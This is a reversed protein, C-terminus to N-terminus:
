RERRKQFTITYASGRFNRRDLPIALFSLVAGLLFGVGQGLKGPLRNMMLRQWGFRNWSRADADDSTLRLLELGQKRAREILASAPILHTHRPADLHPWASKMLGFQFSEPNPVGFVLLGGPNLNDVAADFFTFPNELHELVHWLAIVDHAGLGPLNLEPTTSQWVTVGVEKELFECCRSDREIVDVDFGEMQARLAFIGFAPGVELLRGGNSFPLIASMKAQEKRALSALRELSPIDYYSSEYYKGMDPPPNQIAIVGCRDCRVYIFLSGDVRRNEDRADLFYSYEAGCNPCKEMSNM